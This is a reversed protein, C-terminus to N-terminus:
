TSSDPQQFEVAPPAGQQAHCGGGYGLGQRRKGEM